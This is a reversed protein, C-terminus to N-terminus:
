LMVCCVRHSLKENARETEGKKKMIKWDTDKDEEEKEEEKPQKSGLDRLLMFFNANSRKHNVVANGAKLGSNGLYCSFMGHGSQWEKNFAKVCQQSLM